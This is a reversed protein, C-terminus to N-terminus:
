AVPELLLTALADGRSPRLPWDSLLPADALAVITEPHRAAIVVECEQLELRQESFIMAAISDVSAVSSFDFVFDTCGETRAESLERAFSLAVRSTFRGAATIVCTREGLKQRSINSGGRFPEVLASM